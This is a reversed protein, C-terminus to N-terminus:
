ANDAWGDITPEDTVVEDTDAHLFYRKVGNVEIVLVNCWGVVPLSTTVGPIPPRRKGEFEPDELVPSTHVSLFRMRDRGYM